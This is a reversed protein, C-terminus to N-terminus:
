AVRRRSVIGFEAGVPKEQMRQCVGVRTRERRKELRPAVAHDTVDLAAVGFRSFVRDRRETALVGATEAFPARRVANVARVRRVSARHESFKRHAAGRTRPMRFIPRSGHNGFEARILACFRRVLRRAVGGSHELPPCVAHELLTFRLKTRQVCDANRDVGIVRRIRCGACEHLGQMGRDGGGFRHLPLTVRHLFGSFRLVRRVREGLAGLPVGGAALLRGVPEGGRRFPARAGIREAGGSEGKERHNALM